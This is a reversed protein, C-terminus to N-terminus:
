FNSRSAYRRRLAKRFDRVKTMDVHGELSDKSPAKKTGVTMAPKKSSSRKSDPKKEEDENKDIRMKKINM